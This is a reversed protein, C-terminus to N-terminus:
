LQILGPLPEEPCMFAQMGWSTLPPYYPFQPENVEHSQIFSALRLALGFDAEGLGQTWEKNKCSAGMKM